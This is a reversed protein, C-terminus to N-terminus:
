KRRIPFHPRDVSTKGRLDQIFFEETGSCPIYRRSRGM